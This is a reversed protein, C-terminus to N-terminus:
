VAKRLNKAAEEPPIVVLEVGAGLELGAWKYSRPLIEIHWHYFENNEEGLPASHIFFNYDPNKLAGVIRRLADGLSEALSRRKEDSIEEFHASHFLPYIRTEYSVRPAFPVLTVFHQNQFVIRKKQRIEEELIACHLCKKCNKHFERSGTLSVAISPDIVPIAALQSHPHFISAGAMEGQNHYVLIYNVCPESSLAQYRVQYARLLLEAEELSMKEITKSHDRTIIVEHFGVGKLISGMGVSKVSPCKRQIALSVMPFKNPIVQVFWSSLDKKKKIPTDPRPYWLIPPPNGSKQPDCFPCESEKKIKTLDPRRARSPSILIWNGSVLDKRFESTMQIKRKDFEM